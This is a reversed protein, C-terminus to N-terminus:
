RLRDKRKILYTHTWQGQCKYNSKLAGYTIYSAVKDKPDAVRIWTQDEGRPDDPGVATVTVFHGSNSLKGQRDRWGIRIALPVGASIQERMEALTLPRNEYAELIGMAKLAESLKFTKNCAEANGSQCCDMILKRTAADEASAAQTQQGNQDFCKRVVQCQTLGSEANFFNLLSTTVAAWCWKTQQQMQLKFRMVSASKLLLQHDADPPLKLTILNEGPELLHHLLYWSQRYFGSEPSDFDTRWVAGNVNVLVSGKGGGANSLECILVVGHKYLLKLKFRVYGDPREIRWASATTHFAAGDCADLSLSTERKPDPSSLDLTEIGSFSGAVSDSLPGTQLDVM